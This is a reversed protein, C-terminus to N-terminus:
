KNTEEGEPMDTLKKMHETYGLLQLVSEDRNLVEVVYDLPTVTDNAGYTPIAVLLRVESIKIDYQEM